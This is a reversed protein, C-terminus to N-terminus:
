SDVFFNRTWNGPATKAVWFSEGVSVVPPGAPWKGHEYPHLVYKQRDRDFLHIVDGESVPFSLDEQLHGSKPVPSSRISFGAPIPISLNGQMLEGVFSVSRYDTTPNFFIAGEGPMLKETPNIWKGNKIANDDLRFFRTDFKNLTTGDPWDKFLDPVANSPADLPNALMTFGPPLSVSVYGIVNTSPVDEALVRYFRYSYKFAESDVYDVFDGDSNGTSISKWNQFDVSALITFETGRTLHTRFKFPGYPFRFADILRPAALSSAGKKFLHKDTVKRLFREFKM